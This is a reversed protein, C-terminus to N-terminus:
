RVASPTNRESGPPIRKGNLEGGKKIHFHATLIDEIVAAREEDKDIIDYYCM